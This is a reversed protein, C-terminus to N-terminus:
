AKGHADIVPEAVAGDVEIDAVTGAPFGHEGLVGQDSAGELGRDVALGQDVDDIAPCTGADSAWPM